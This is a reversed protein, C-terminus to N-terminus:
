TFPKFYQIYIQIVDEGSIDSENTINLSIEIRGDAVTYEFDSYSFKSYSLGYGFPLIFGNDQLDYYRYGVYVDDHYYTHYIDRRAYEKNIPNQDLSCIWTEPLRGSPNHLGFLNNFIAESQGEGALYTIMMAGSTNYVDKVNVVSGSVLVTAFSDFVEKVLRMVEIQQSRLEVTSRDIGESEDSQYQGLFLLVKDYKGQYEMLEASTVTINDEDYCELFDYCVGESDM